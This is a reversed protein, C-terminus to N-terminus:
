AKNPDTMLILACVPRLVPMIMSGIPAKVWPLIELKGDFHEVLATCSEVGDGNNIFTVGELRRIKAQHIHGCIVGSLGSRSRRRTRFPRHVEAGQDFGSRCSTM